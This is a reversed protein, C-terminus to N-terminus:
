EGILEIAQLVKEIPPIRLIDNLRLGFLPDMIGNFEYIVWWYETSGYAAQSILDPRQLLEQNITLFTDGDGPELNLPNKLIVFDENSRNKATTVIKYRSTKKFNAM